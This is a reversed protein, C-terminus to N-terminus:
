SDGKRPTDWDPVLEAGTPRKFFGFHEDDPSREVKATFAVRAGKLEAGGLLHNPVTGWVKNGDDLRVLMKLASGYASEQWRTSLIEGEIRYRGEALPAVNALAEREQRKREQWQAEREQSRRVAALQRESLEHNRNLQRYLSGLFEDQENAYLFQRMGPNDIDFQEDALKNALAAAELAARDKIHKARFASRGPLETREACTEGFALRKGTPKHEVVAVWRIGPHGCHNCHFVSTHDDGGTRWDPFHKFIRAQWAAVMLEYMEAVGPRGLLHAPPPEPRRNDLYDIVQYDDPDFEAPRHIDTRAM